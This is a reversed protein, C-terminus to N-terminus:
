NDEGSSTHGVGSCSLHGVPSADIHRAVGGNRNLAAQRLGEVRGSSERGGRHVRQTGKKTKAAEDALEDISEDGEEARVIAGGENNLHRGHPKGSM